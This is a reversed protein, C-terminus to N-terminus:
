TNKLCVLFPSCYFVANSQRFDDMLEAYLTEPSQKLSLRVWHGSM